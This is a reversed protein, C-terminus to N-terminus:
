QIDGCALGVSIGSVCGSENFAARRYVPLDVKPNGTPTPVQTASWAPAAAPLCAHAVHRVCARACAAGRTGELGLRGLARQQGWARVMVQDSTRGQPSAVTTPLSPPWALSAPCPPKLLPAATAAGASWGGTLVAGPGGM